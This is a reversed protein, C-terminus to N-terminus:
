LKSTLIMATKSTNNIILNEFNNNKLITIAQQQQQLLEIKKQHQKDSKSIEETKVLNEPPLFGGSVGNSTECKGASVPPNETESNIDEKNTSSSSDQKELKSNNTMPLPDVQSAQLPPLPPLLPAEMSNLEQEILKSDQKLKIIDNMYSTFENNKLSAETANKDPEAAVLSANTNSVFNAKPLPPNATTTTATKASKTSSSSKQSKSPKKNSKSHYSRYIDFINFSFVFVENNITFSGYLVHKHNRYYFCLTHITLKHEKSSPSENILQVHMM